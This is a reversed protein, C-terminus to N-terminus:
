SGQQQSRKEEKALKRAAVTLIQSSSLNRGAKSMIRDDRKRKNKIEKTVARKQDNLEKRREELAQAERARDAEMARLQAQLTSSSGTACVM